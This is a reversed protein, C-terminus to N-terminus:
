SEGRMIAWLEDSGDSNDAQKSQVGTKKNTLPEIEDTWRAGNLYTAPHPAFGEVWQRDNQKRNSMDHMITDILESNAKLRNWAAQAALKGKKIPHQQWFAAFADPAHGGRPLIKKGSKDVKGCASGPLDSRESDIGKSISLSDNGTRRRLEAEFEQDSFLSLQNSDTAHAAQQVLDQNESTTETTSDTYRVPSQRNRSSPITPKRLGHNDTEPVPSQRNGSKMSELFDDMVDNVLNHNRYYWTMHNVRDYVSCYFSESGDSTLFQMGDSLSQNYASNSNHCVGIKLFGTKFEEASFGLEECWSDGKKYIPHVVENGDKDKKIVPETFKYFGDPYLESWYELQQFLIVATVSKCIPRLEKIYPISRKFIRLLESM